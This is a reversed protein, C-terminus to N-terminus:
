QENNIKRKLVIQENSKSVIFDFLEKINHYEDPHYKPRNFKLKNLIQITNNQYSINFLYSGGKYPLIYRVPKPLNEVNYNAPITYNLVSVIEFPYAIDVPYKREELKLIISSLEGFITNLYIIAKEKESKLETSFSYTSKFPLDKNNINTFHYDDLQLEPFKKIFGNSYNEDGMKIIKKTENLSQYGVFSYDIKGSKNGCSDINITAISLKKSKNWSKIEIWFSDNKKVVLGRYNLDNIDLLYYPRIPDTANLVYETSDIKVYCLVNNFQNLVPYADQIKGNSRTSTLLPYAEIDAENLIKMLIMNIESSNGKQESYINGLPQNLKISIRNNWKMQEVVHNYISIMQQKKDPTQEKTSNAVDKFAKCSRLRLGFNSNDRELLRKSVDDWSTVWKKLNQSPYFTSSLQFSSRENYDDMTTIYPEEILAPINKKIYRCYKGKFSKTNGSSVSSFVSYPLEQQYSEQQNIDITDTGELLILYEYFLPIKTRFESWATPISSQFEWNDIFSSTSIVKYSFEIVSGVEVGPIAFCKRHWITNIDEDYIDKSELETKEVIGNKNLKYSHAKIDIVKDTNDEYHYSIFVDSYDKGKTSLIKIRKHREYIQKYASEYMGYGVQGFDCLVVADANTDNKYKVMRLDEIDIDGYKMPKEQAILLTFTLLLIQILLAGRILLNNIM